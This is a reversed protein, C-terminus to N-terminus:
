EALEKLVAKDIQAQSLLRSLQLDKKGLKKLKETGKAKLGGHHNWRRYHKAETINVERLVAAADVGEALIRDAQRIKRVIQEPLHRKKKTM